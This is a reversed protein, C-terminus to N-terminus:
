SQLRKKGKQKKPPTKQRAPQEAAAPGPAARPSSGADRLKDRALMLAWGLINSGRWAAIDSWRDRWRHGEMVRDSVDIGIGWFRDNRTAECLVADGTGLLEAREKKCKEFKQGVAERAITLVHRQWRGEDWPSVTRGLAKINAPTAADMISRAVDVDRMLLAKCLMISQESWNVHVERLEEPYGDAWCCDPVRFVHPSEAFNSLCGLPKHKTHGYFGVVPKGKMRPWYERLDSPLLIGDIAQRKAEEAVLPSAPRKEVGDVAAGLCDAGEESGAAGAPDEHKPRPPTEQAAAAARPPVAAGAAGAAQAAKPKSLPVPLPHGEQDTVKKFLGLPVFGQANGETLIVGNHSSYFRLGAELARALDLHFLVESSMRAGSIAQGSSPVASAFHVHQRAMRSLGGSGVIIDLHRRFTGHVCIPFKSADTIESLHDDTLGVKKSHGQNAAILLGAATEELRFRQKPCSRVIERVDGVTLGRASAAPPRALLEAVPICGESDMSYGLEKASHRLVQSFARSAECMAKYRGKDNGGTVIPGQSLKGSLVDSPAVVAM